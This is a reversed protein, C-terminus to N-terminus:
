QCKHPHRHRRRARARAPAHRGGGASATAAWYRAERKLAFDVLDERVVGGELLADQGELAGLATLHVFLIPEFLPDSLDPLAQREAPIQMQEAFAKTAARFAEEREATSEDVPGLEQVAAITLALEAEANGLRAPLLEHWWDGRERALLLVHTPGARAASALWTIIEAAQDVRAHAEDIVILLREPV